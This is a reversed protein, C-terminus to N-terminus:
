SETNQSATGSNETASPNLTMGTLKKKVEDTHETMKDIAKNVVKSDRFAEGAKMMEKQADPDDAMLEVWEMFDSLTKQPIKDDAICWNYYGAYLLYAIGTENISDDSLPAIHEQTIREMFWRVAPMGFRLPVNEGNMNINCRGTM